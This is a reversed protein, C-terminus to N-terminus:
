SPQAVRSGPRTLDHPTGRHIWYSEIAELTKGRTEPVLWAVLAFLMICFLAYLWFPFAHHFAAVLAPSKDLMPFTQSVAYNALWLCITAVGMASGRLRTPFMEALLVWTVPGVSLAFSAIYGLVFLLLWGETKGTYASVGMAALAIFM